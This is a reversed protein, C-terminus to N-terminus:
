KNIEFSPLWRARGPHQLQPRILHFRDTAYIGNREAENWNTNIIIRINKSKIFIFIPCFHYFQKKDNKNKKPKYDSYVTKIRM